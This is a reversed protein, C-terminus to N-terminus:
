KLRYEIESQLIKILESAPAVQSDRCIDYYWDSVSSYTWPGVIREQRNCFQELFIVMKQLVEIDAHKCVFNYKQNKQYPYILPYTLMIVMFECALLAGNREVMKSDVVDQWTANGHILNSYMDTTVVLSKQSKYYDLWSDDTANKYFFRVLELCAVMGFVYAYRKLIHNQEIASAQCLIMFEQVSLFLSEEDTLFKGEVKKRYIDNHQQLLKDYCYIQNFSDKWRKYEELLYGGILFQKEDFNLDPYKTIIDQYWSQVYPYKEQFKFLEERTPLTSCYQYLAVGVIITAASATVGIAQSRASTLQNYDFCFSEGSISISMLVVYCYIYKKNM